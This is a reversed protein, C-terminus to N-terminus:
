PRSGPRTYRTRAAPQRRQAPPAPVDRPHTPGSPRAPAADGPRPRATLAVAALREADERFRESIRHGLALGLQRAILAQVGIAIIVPFVPLRVLGLSFGIAFEDMSISVGLAIVDFGRTVRLRGARYEEDDDEHHALMFIGLAIVAAAALYDAVSCARLSISVASYWRSRSRIVVLSSWRAGVSAQQDPTDVDQDGAGDAPGVPAMAARIRAPDQVLPGILRAVGQGAALGILPM